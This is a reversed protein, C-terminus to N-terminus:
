GKRRKGIEGRVDRPTRGLQARFVASMHSHHSFGTALALETLSDAGASLGDLVAVMRLRRLYAGPTTGRQRRFARYLRFESCGADRAIDAFRVAEGLRKRLADCARDVLRGEAHRAPDSPSWAFVGPDHLRALLDLAAEQAHIPDVAGTRELRFLTTVAGALAGLRPAHVLRTPREPRRPAGCTELIEAATAGGYALSWGADIFGFPHGTRYTAGPRHEVITAADTTVERRGQRITCAGRRLVSVVHHSHTRESRLEECDRQCAWSVIQVSGDDHVLRSRAGNTVSRSSPVIPLPWPDVRSPKTKM